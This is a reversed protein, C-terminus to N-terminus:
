TYDLDFNVVVCYKPDVKKVAASLTSVIDDHTLICDPKLVVDFIINTHDIGTVIRLDHFSQVGDFILIAEAILVNMQQVLPNNLEVPDMHATFEINLTKKVKMEIDDILEHIELLNGESDVEIHISAFIKGPGYNHVILDHVGLVGPNDLVLTQIDQVLETDPAEGLLPSITERILQIGSWIIFLAVLCGMIGDLQFGSLKGIILSVLVACTSIVDNRSDTGTAILTLSNIKKGISINFIAQWVKIAIAIVLVIVTVISFNLPDPHLVKDVSSRLLQVGVIIILVSVLLGTLYEYRAHGYPHDKDEPMSALKFGILTILSSSADALNNIGDAVIAISGSILGILIKMACLLVNSIIGVIGALKGYSKRVVPDSYNDYDRVFHKSLFTIM